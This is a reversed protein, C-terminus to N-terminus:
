KGSGVKRHDGLLAVTLNGRTLSFVFVFHVFVRKKGLFFLLWFVFVFESPPSYRGLVLCWLVTPIKTLPEDNTGKCGGSLPRTEAFVINQASKSGWKQANRQLV